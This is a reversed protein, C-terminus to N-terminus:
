KLFLNNQFAHQEQRMSLYESEHKILQILSEFAQINISPEDHFLYEILKEVFADLQSRVWSALENQVEAPNSDSSHADGRDLLKVFVQTLASISAFIVELTNGEELYELLTTLNVLGTKKALADKAKAKIDNLKQQKVSIDVIAEAAPRKRKVSM